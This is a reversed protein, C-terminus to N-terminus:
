NNTNVDAKDNKDETTNNSETTNNPTNVDNSTTIETSEDEKANISSFYTKGSFVISLFETESLNSGLYDKHIANPMTAMLKAKEQSILHKLMVYRESEEEPFEIFVAVSGDDESKIIKNVKYSSQLPVVMAEKSEKNNEDEKLKDLVVYFDYEGGVKLDGLLADTASLHFYLGRNGESTVISQIGEADEPSIFQVSKVPQGSYIPTTAVKGVIDNINGVFEKFNAVDGKAVEIIKFDTALIQGSYPEIDRAAVVVGVKSFTQMFMVTFIGGLVLSAGLSVVVYKSIKKAKKSM